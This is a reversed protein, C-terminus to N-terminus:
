TKMVVFGDDAVRFLLYIYVHPILLYAGGKGELAEIGM